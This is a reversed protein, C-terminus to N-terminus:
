ARHMRDWYDVGELTLGAVVADHDAYTGGYKTVGKLVGTRGFVLTEDYVHVKTRYNISSVEVLSGGVQVQTRRQPNIDTLEHKM